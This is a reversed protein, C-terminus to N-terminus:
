PEPQQLPELLWEFGVQLLAEETVSSAERLPKGRWKIFYRRRGRRVEIKLLAEPECRSTAERDWTEDLHFLKLLSVHFVDHRKSAELLQLKYSVNNLQKIVKYLKYFRHNFKPMLGQPLLWSASHVLVLDRPYFEVHKRKKNVRNIMRSKTKTLYEQAVQRRDRESVIIELLGNYKFVHKFFLHAVHQTTLPPKASM